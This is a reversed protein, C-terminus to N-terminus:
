FAVEKLVTRGSSNDLEYLTFTPPEDPKPSLSDLVQQLQSRLADIQRRAAKQRASGDAGAQLTRDWATTVNKLNLLVKGLGSEATAPNGLVDASDRAVQAAAAVATSELETLANAKRAEALQADLDGAIIRLKAAVASYDPAAQNGLLSTEKRTKAANALSGPLGGVAGLLEAIKPDSKQNVSALV